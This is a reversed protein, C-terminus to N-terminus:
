KTNSLNIKHTGSDMSVLLEIDKNPGVELPISIKKGLSSSEFEITHTGVTIFGKYVPPIEGVPDGDIYALAPRNAKIIIQVQQSEGAALEKTAPIKTAEVEAPKKQIREEQSKAQGLDKIDKIRQQALESFLGNPFKKLYAEYAEASNSEKVTRWFELEMEPSPLIADIKKPPPATQEVMYVNVVFVFDGKDLFPNRIKGYQPHQSGRSYSVVQKLLYEGLETGTVYGDKDTDAAGEIGSIFESKFISKDPVLEDASGSTMFQRVPMATKYSIVEPVGGRSLAFISGSFCSDFMFLVHKCEIRQAFNEFQQMDIAKDKFGQEDVNPNPADAPVIYGMEVGTALKETHGHGAFYFLLRNEPEHGYKSIFGEVTAILKARDPNRSIEVQFGNKELAKRVDQIDKAVGSLDPWGATYDDIGILLAYSEKYLDIRHGEKDQVWLQTETAQQPTQSYSLFILASLCSALVVGFVDRNESM